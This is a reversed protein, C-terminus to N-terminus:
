RRNGGSSYPMAGRSLMLSMVRLPRQFVAIEMGLIRSKVVAYWRMLGISWIYVTATPLDLIMWM